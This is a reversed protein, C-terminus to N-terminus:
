DFKQDIHDKTMVKDELAKNYAPKDEASEDENINTSKNIDLENDHWQGQLGDNRQM